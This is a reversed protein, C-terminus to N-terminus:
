RRLSQGNRFCIRGSRVFSKRRLTIFKGFLDPLINSIHLVIATRNDVILQNSINRDQRTSGGTSRASRRGREWSNFTGRRAKAYNLNVCIIQRIQVRQAACQAGTINRGLRAAVRQALLVLRGFVIGPKTLTALQDPLEESQFHTTSLMNNFDSSNRAPNTAPDSLSTHDSLSIHDEKM